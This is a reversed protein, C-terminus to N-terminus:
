RYGRAEARDDSAQPAPECKRHIWADNSIVTVTAGAQGALAKGCWRDDDLQEQALLKWTGTNNRELTVRLGVLEMADLRNRGDILVPMNKTLTIAIPSTLGNRIIDQGLALLDAEGLLPFVDADPHIPLSGRWSM